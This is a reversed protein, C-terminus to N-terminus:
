FRRTDFFRIKRGAVVKGTRTNEISVQTSDNGIPHGKVWAVVRNKNPLPTSCSRAGGSKIYVKYAM